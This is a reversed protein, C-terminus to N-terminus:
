ATASDARKMGLDFAKVIFQVSAALLGTILAFIVIALGLQAADSMGAMTGRLKWVVLLLIPIPLGFALGRIFPPLTAKLDRSLVIWGAACALAIAAAARALVLPRMDTSFLVRGGALYGFATGILITGAICALGLAPGDAHRGRGMQVGLVGAVLVIVEFGFMVWSPRPQLVALAGVGLASLAVVACVGLVLLLIGKPPPKLRPEPLPHSTM